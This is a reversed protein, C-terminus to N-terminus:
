KNHLFKAFESYNEPFLINDESRSVIRDMMESGSKKDIYDVLKMLCIIKVKSNTKYFKSAAILTTSNIAIISNSIKNFLLETPIHPSIIDKSKPHAFGNPHPKVSINNGEIFEILKDISDSTFIEGERYSIEGGAIYINDINKYDIQVDQLTRFLLEEFTFDVNKTMVNIKNFSKEYLSLFFTKYYYSITTDTKFYIKLITKLLITLSFQKINKLADFVSFQNRSKPEFDYLYSKGGLSRNSLIVFLWIAFQLHTFILDDKGIIGIANRLRRKVKGPKLIYDWYTPVNIFTSKVKLSDFLDSYNKRTYLFHINEGRLKLYLGLFIPYTSTAFIYKM